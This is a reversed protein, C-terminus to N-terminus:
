ANGVQDNPITKLPPIRKLHEIVAEASEEETLFTHAEPDNPHRAILTIKMHPAFVKKIEDLHFRVSKNARDIARRIREEDSETDCVNPEEDAM